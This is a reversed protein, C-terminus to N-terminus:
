CCKLKKDEETENFSDEILMRKQRRRSNRQGRVSDREAGAHKKVLQKALNLFTQEVGKGSKASTYVHTAGIKSAYQEAESRPVQQKSRLDEKNAAFCLIIDKGVIKRLESVWSQLKMFSTRDTIDYVILAANSDRYYIPALAHFKEQGATDWISLSLSTTGITLRKELYSAQITSQQRDSYSGYIYRVLLSTKGVRGEGLLVVKFKIRSM